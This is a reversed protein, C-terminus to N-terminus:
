YDAVRRRGRDRARASGLSQSDSTRALPGRYLAGVGEGIGKVERAATAPLLTAVWCHQEARVDFEVIKGGRGCQAM